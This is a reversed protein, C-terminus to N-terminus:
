LAGVLYLIGLNLDLWLSTVEEASCQALLRLVLALCGKGVLPASAEGLM